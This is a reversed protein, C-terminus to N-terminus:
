TAAQKVSSYWGNLISASAASCPVPEGEILWDTRGVWILKEFLEDRTPIHSKFPLPRESPTEHHERRQEWFFV